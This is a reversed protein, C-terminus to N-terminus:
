GGQCDPCPGKGSADEVIGTGECTGCKEDTVTVAEAEITQPQPALTSNLNDVISGARTDEPQGNVEHHHDNDFRIVDQLGQLAAFTVKCSSKIAAAKAKEIYDSSWIYDQKAAKRARDVRMKSVGNVKRILRGNDTYTVAFLIGNFGKDGDNFAAGKKLEYHQVGDAGWMKLEDGEYIPEVIFDADPYTEKIKALYGRYGPQFQVANGYKVLHAHQRGDIMMRFRASDIMAQAISHPTCKSLDKKEDGMTREIEAIVSAPYKMVAQNQAVGNTPEGLAVALRNLVKDNFIEQRIAPLNSM